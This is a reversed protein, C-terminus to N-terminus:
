PMPHADPPNRSVARLSDLVAKRKADASRHLAASKMARGGFIIWGGAGFLYRCGVSGFMNVRRLPGPM